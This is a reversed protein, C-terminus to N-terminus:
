EAAEAHADAEKGETEQVFAFYVDELTPRRVHAEYVPIGASVLSEILAPM